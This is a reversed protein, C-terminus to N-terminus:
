EDDEAPAEEPKSEGAPPEHSEVRKLVDASITDYCSALLGVLPFSSNTFPSPGLRRLLPHAVPPPSVRIDLTALESPPEWFRELLEGVMPAKVDSVGSVRGVYLGTGQSSARMHALQDMLEAGALGRMRFMLFPDTSLRDAFIYAACCAHKCWPNDSTEPQPAAPETPAIPTAAVGPQGTPQMGPTGSPIAAWARKCSCSVTIDAAETPFLRLSLPGFVDEINTPLEGSLLKAAYVAGEAMAKVVAHWQEATFPTVRVTTQYPRDLRGQIVASITGSEVALSKTQGAKAYALGEVLNTGEAITEVLRVWRQAAWSAAWPVAGGAGEVIKIGARVKKPNARPPVDRRPMFGRVPANAPQGPSTGTPPSAAPTTAPRIPQNPPTANSM